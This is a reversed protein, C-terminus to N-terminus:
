VSFGVYRSLNQVGLDIQYIEFKEFSSQQIAEIINGETDHLEDVSQSMTSEFEDSIYEFGINLAIFLTHECPQIFQEEAWNIVHQQCCPCQVNESQDQELRIFRYSMIMLDLIKTIKFSKQTLIFQM